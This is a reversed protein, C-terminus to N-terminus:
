KTDGFKYYVRNGFRLDIYMLSNYKNKIETKLPDAHIATDLNEAIKSFDADTRFLVEARKTNSNKVSLLFKANPAKDIFFVVPKLSITELNKKFNILKEFIGKAFYNGGDLEGYFRFFVEPSFHPAEDFVYGSQDIFYCNESDSMGTEPLTKGCWTYLAEREVINVNLTSEGTIKYEVSQIRKFSSMLNETLNKKSYLFINSKPFLYAYKLSLETNINQVVDKEELVKVGTVTINKIQFEQIRSLYIFLSLLLFICSLWAFIKFLSKNRRSKKLELLRPSNLINKNRTKM